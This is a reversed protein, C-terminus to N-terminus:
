SGTGFRYVGDRGMTEILKRRGQYTPCHGIGLLIPNPGTCTLPVTTGLNIPSGSKPQAEVKGRVGAFAALDSSNREPLGGM